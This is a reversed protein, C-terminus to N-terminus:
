CDIWIRSMKEDVVDVMVCRLHTVQKAREAPAKLACMLLEFVCLPSSKGARSNVGTELWCALLKRSKNRFPIVCLTYTRVGGTQKSTKTRHKKSAKPAEANLAYM